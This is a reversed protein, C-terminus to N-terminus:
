DFIGRWEQYGGSASRIRLVNVGFQKCQWSGIESNPITTKTIKMRACGGNYITCQLNRVQFFQGYVLIPTVTIFNYLHLRTYTGHEGM